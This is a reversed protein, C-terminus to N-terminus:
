QFISSKSLTLVKDIPSISRGRGDTGEYYKEAASEFIIYINDEALDVEESGPPMEVNKLPRFPNRDLEQVSAYVKLYSSRKRGYSTSVYVRNDKDFAVGQVKDPIRYSKVQRLGNETVKYAVMKSLFMKSHTAVWLMDDYYSLCSPTNSVHYEEFLGSCDILTGAPNEAMQLIFTYPICELTNSDSHCVWINKGDFTLGGLHSKERMGLTFLYSGTQRHFVHICGLYVGAGSSYSSVLLFKDTMCIGQPCQGTNTIRNELLDMEKTSPMGPIDVYDLFNYTCDKLKKYNRSWVASNEYSYMEISVYGDINKTWKAYLKLDNLSNDEIFTLKNRFASETFWGAFNYGERVPTTPVIPFDAKNYNVNTETDFDFAGGNLYYQVQLRNMPGIFTEEMQRSEAFYVDSPNEIYYENNELQRARLLPPDQIILLICFVIAFYKRKRTCKKM